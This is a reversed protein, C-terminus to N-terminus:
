IWDEVSPSTILRTRTQDPASSAQKTRRCKYHKWCRRSPKVSMGRKINQCVLKSTGRKSQYYHYLIVLSLNCSLYEWVRNYEKYLVTNNKRPSPDPSSARIYCSVSFSRHYNRVEFMFRKQEVSYMIEFMIDWRLFYRKSDSPISKM